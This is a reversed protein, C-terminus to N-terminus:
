LSEQTPLVRDDGCLAQADKDLCLKGEEPLPLMQFLYVRVTRPHPPPKLLLVGLRKVHSCTEGRKCVDGKIKVDKMTGSYTMKYDLTSYQICAM